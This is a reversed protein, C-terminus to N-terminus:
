EPSQHKLNFHIGEDVLSPRKPIRPSKVYKKGTSTLAQCARMETRLNQFENAQDLTHKQNMKGDGSKRPSPFSHVRQQTCGHAM